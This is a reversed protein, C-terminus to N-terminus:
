IITRYSLILFCKMHLMVQPRVDLAFVTGWEEQSHSSIANDLNLLIHNHYQLLRTLYMKFCEMIMGDSLYTQILM